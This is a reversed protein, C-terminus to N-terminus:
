RLQAGREGQGYVFYRTTQGIAVAIATTAFASRNCRQGLLPGNDDDDDDNNGCFRRSKIHASKRATEM